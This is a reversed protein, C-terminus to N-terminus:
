LNASVDDVSGYSAYLGLLCYHGNIRKSTPGHEISIITMPLQDRQEGEAEILATDGTAYKISDKVLLHRQKGQLAELEAPTVTFLHTM